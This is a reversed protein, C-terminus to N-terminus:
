VPEHTSPEIVYPQRHTSQHTMPQSDTIHILHNQLMDNNESICTHILKFISCAKMIGTNKFGFITITEDIFCIWNKTLVKANELTKSFGQIITSIQCLIGIEIVLLYAVKKIGAM